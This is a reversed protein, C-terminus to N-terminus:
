SHCQMSDAFVDAARSGHVVHMSFPSRGSVMPSRPSRPTPRLRAAVACGAAILALRVRTHLQQQMYPPGGCLCLSGMTRLCDAPGAM